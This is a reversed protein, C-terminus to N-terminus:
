IKFSLTLGLFQKFQTRAVKKESGDPLLVPKGDGDLVKFRIDDDYIIHFNLRATFFWSIQKDLNIEWDVDINQPKNHYASFLRVSNSINLGDMISSSTRLVVQGGIEQRNRRDAKIGHLTQNIKLTDLVFTNRYSLPSINVRTKEFPKYEIGVGVTFTGPNLFRSTVVSDNPYNYGKAVQTKFYFVSSFDMKERLDTNFQSNVELIDTNTRFGLKESRMTGYRMRGENTWRMKKEKNTYDARTRIDMNSALSNEGGKAWNSFYTQNLTYSSTLGYKWYIPIEKMAQLKALSRQPRLTTFPIDDAGKKERREVSVNDELVLALEYKNPNGIWITLSDNALNKVWFRQMAEAQGSLWIPKQQGMIDNFFILISDRTETYDLLTRVAYQLSDAMRTSSARYFPSDPAGLLVQRTESVVLAASDPLFHLSQGSRAPKVEPRLVKDEVQYLQIKRAALFAHDIIRETLTDHLIKRSHGISQLPPLSDGPQPLTPPMIAALGLSDPPVIGLTDGQLLGRDMFKQPRAYATSDIIRITITKQTYFPDRPLAVTDIIFSHANLWRLPLTDHRVLEQLEYKVSEYPFVVLHSKASDFPLQYQKLLRSLSQQLMEESGRWYQPNELIKQLYASATAPTFLIPKAEQKNDQHPTPTSNQALAGGVWFLCVGILFLAHRYNM